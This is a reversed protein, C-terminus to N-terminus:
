DESDYMNRFERSLREARASRRYTFGGRLKKEIVYGIAGEEDRVAQWREFGHQDEAEHRFDCLSFDLMFVKFVDKDTPKSVIFSRTNVDRNCIGRDGIELIIDIAEECIRQWHERPAKDALDTLPFGKVYELLIGPCQFCRGVSSADLNTPASLFLLVQGFSRPVHLGQLDSLAEYANTEMEYLRWCLFQLYSELRGDSWGQRTEDGGYRMEDYHQSWYEFQELM